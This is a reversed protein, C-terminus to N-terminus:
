EGELTELTAQEARSEAEALEAEYAAEKENDVQAEKAADLWLELIDKASFGAREAKYLGKFLAETVAEYEMQAPDEPGGPASLSVGPPVNFGSM